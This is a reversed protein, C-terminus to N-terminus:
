LEIYEFVGAYHLHSDICLQGCIIYDPYRPLLHDVTKPPKPNPDAQPTIPTASASM